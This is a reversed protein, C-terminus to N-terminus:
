LCGWEEDKLERVGEVEGMNCDRFVVVRTHCGRGTLPHILHSLPPLNRRPNLRTWCILEMAHWPWSQNFVQWMVGQGCKLTSLFLSTLPRGHTHLTLTVSVCVSLCKWTWGRLFSGHIYYTQTLCVYLSTYVYASMYVCGDTEAGDQSNSPRAKSRQREIWETKESLEYSM